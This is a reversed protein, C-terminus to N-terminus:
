KCQLWNDGVGVEVELPLLKWWPMSDTMANTVLEKVKEVEGEDCVVLLEDHVQGVPPYGARILRIVAEKCVDGAIGQCLNETVMGGYIKVQDMQQKQSKYRDYVWEKCWKEYIKKWTYRLNNYKMVLGSPLKIGNHELRVVSVGPFYGPNSKPLQELVKECRKWFRPVGTYTERYLQVTRTAFEEDLAMGTSSYVQGTFRRWGMGYGLGLIAAKGVGREQKNQKTVEYGFLKSAFKCYVDEKNKIATMLEPDRSLFALIRLEINSLDAVLLKKGKPVSIAGRLESGRTFNQPNGACGNSGSFRHTQMAGSFIIDFCYSSIDAIRALKKARTEELTQKVAMRAKCLDQLRKNSSRTMLLFGEDQISLALIKKDKKNLKMPVSFGEDKLLKAFQLNSSFVKPNINVKALHEDKTSCIRNYVALCKDKDIVLQPELFARITWDILVWQDEPIRKRLAHFIGHCLDVDRKCYNALEAEQKPTLERLNNTKLEGKAPLGLAEAAVKLSASPISAGLTARVIPHTDVWQAPKVGYKWALIGGDFKVNHAVVRFQAWDISDVRNAVEDAGYWQTSGDNIKIGMGQIYFDPHRIYEVMSISRLDYKKKTSYYTEFDIFITDM